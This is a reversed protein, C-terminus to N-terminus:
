ATAEKMWEDRAAVCQNLTHKVCFFLKGNIHRYDYACYRKKNSATFYEHQECGNSVNKPDLM